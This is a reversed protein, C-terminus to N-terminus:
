DAYTVNIDVAVLDPQMMSEKTPGVARVHGTVGRNRRIATYYTDQLNRQPLGPAQELM